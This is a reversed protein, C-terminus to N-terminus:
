IVGFMFLHGDKKMLNKINKIIKSYHDDDKAVVEICLSSVIVDM